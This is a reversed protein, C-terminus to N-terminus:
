GAGEDGYYFAREEVSRSKIGVELDLRAAHSDGDRFSGRMRVICTAPGCAAFDIKPSPEDLRATEQRASDLVWPPANVSKQEGCATLVLSAGAAASALLVRCKRGV